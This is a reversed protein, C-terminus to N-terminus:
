ERIQSVRWHQALNRAEFYGTDTDDHPQPIFPAEIETLKTWDINQFLEMTQITEFNARKDQDIFIYYM